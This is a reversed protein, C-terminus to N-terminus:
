QNKRFRAFFGKKEEKQVRADKRLGRVSVLYLGSITAKVEKKVPIQDFLKEDSIFTMIQPGVKAKVLPIKSRKLYWPIERLVIEPLDADKARVKKKDIILMSVQQQNQKLIEEQEANKKDMRKGLFYFVIAAIVLIVCIVILVITFVRM